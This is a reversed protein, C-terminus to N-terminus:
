LEIIENPLGLLDCLAGIDPRDATVIADGRIGAGLVVSANVVDSMGSRACVSGVARARAEGFSEVECGKLLLSLRAQPGGRWAQALVGAPVTIRVGEALATSHLAWIREEDREAAILAGTDYTLSWTM